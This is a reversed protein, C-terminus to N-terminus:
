GGQREKARRPRPTAASASAPANRVDRQTTLADILATAASYAAAHTTEDRAALDLHAALRLGLPSLEGAHQPPRLLVWPEVGFADALHQIEDIRTSVAARRIRDLTGNSVGSRATLKPLTDLDPQASMFARLNAALIDRPRM